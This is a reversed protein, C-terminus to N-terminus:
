PRGAAVASELGGALIALCTAVREAYAGDPGRHPTANADILRGRAEHVVYDFKGYDFGLDRRQQRVEPPVDRHLALSGTVSAMKVLPSPALLTSVVEAEGLFFWMNLAYDGGRREVYLPEVVLAPHRWVWRPVQERREYLRYDGQQPGARWPTPWRERLSALAARGAGREARLLRRESAGGHNLDSKVIVPGDYDSDGALLEQGIRRKSIDAVGGNLTRPYRAGLARYSPPLHTLDVHLIALDAPPPEGCGQHLRVRHGEAQWLRAIAALFYGGDLGQRLHTLLAITRTAIPTDERRGQGLPLGLSAPGEPSSARSQRSEAVRRDARLLGAPEPCSEAAKSLQRERAM